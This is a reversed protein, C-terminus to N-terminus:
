LDFDDTSLNHFYRIGQLTQRKLTMTDGYIQGYEILRGMLKSLNETLLSILKNQVTVM